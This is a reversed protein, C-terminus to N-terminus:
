TPDRGRDNHLPTFGPLVQGALHYTVTRVPLDAHVGEPPTQLLRGVLRSGDADDLQVLAVVYPVDRAFAEDLPHRVVVWSYLRGLGSHEQWTRDTAGCHPCGGSPPSWLRQCSSCRPLLLRGEELGAWYEAADPEVEVPLLGHPVPPAMEPIM